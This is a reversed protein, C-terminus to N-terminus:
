TTLEENQLSVQLPSYLSFCIAHRETIAKKLNYLPVEFFTHFVPFEHIPMEYVASKTFM